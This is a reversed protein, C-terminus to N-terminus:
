GGIPEQMPAAMMAQWRMDVPPRSGGLAYDIAMAAMHEVVWEFRDEKISEIDFDPAPNLFDIGYPVGDRIAMEVTNMDYGLARNLTLCDRVIRERLGDDIGEFGAVYREPRPNQHHYRSVLVDERKL